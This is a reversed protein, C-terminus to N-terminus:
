ALLDAQQRRQIPEGFGLCRCGNRKVHTVIGRASENGCKPLAKSFGWFRGNFLSTLLQDPCHTSLLEAPSLSSSATWNAIPRYGSSYWDYRIFFPAEGLNNPQGVEM